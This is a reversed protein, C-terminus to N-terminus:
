KGLWETYTDNYVKLVKDIGMSKLRKVFTDWNSLPENGMIFKVIMEDVYTQVENMVSRRLEEDESKFRLEPITDVAYPAIKEMAEINYSPNLDLYTYYNHLSPWVSQVPSFSGIVQKASMGDPNKQVYDSYHYTGNVEKTFTKGEEPGFAM